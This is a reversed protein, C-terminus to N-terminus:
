GRPRGGSNKIKLTDVAVMVSGKDFLTVNVYWRGDHGRMPTTHTRSVEYLQEGDLQRTPVRVPTGRPLDPAPVLDVSEGADLKAALEWAQAMDLFVMEGDPGDHWRRNIRLRFRGQASKEWQEAPFREIKVVTKAGKKVCIVSDFKRHEAM